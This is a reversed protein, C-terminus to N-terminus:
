VYMAQRKMNKQGYMM